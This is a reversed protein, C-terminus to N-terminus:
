VQLASIAHSCEDVMWLPCLQNKHSLKAIRGVKLASRPPQNFQGGAHDIVVFIGCIRHAALDAFFRAVPQSIKFANGLEVQGWAARRLLYVQVVCLDIGIM